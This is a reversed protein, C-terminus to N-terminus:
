RSSWTLSAPTGQAVKRLAGVGLKKGAFHCRPPRKEGDRVWLGRCGADLVGPNQQAMHMCLLTSSSCKSCRGGLLGGALLAAKIDKSTM